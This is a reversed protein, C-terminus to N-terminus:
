KLPSAKAEEVIAALAAKQAADVDTFLVVVIYEDQSLRRVLRVQCDIDLVSAFPTDAAGPLRVRLRDGATLISGGQALAVVTDRHMLLGIGTMSIESTRAEFREGLPGLLGVPQSLSYRPFLRREQM